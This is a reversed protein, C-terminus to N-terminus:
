WPAGYSQQTLMQLGSVAKVGLDSMLDRCLKTWGISKAVDVIPPAKENCKALIQKKDVKLIAAKIRKM